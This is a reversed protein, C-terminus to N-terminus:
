SVLQALTITLIETTGSGSVTVTKADSVGALNLTNATGATTIEIAEVKAINVTGVKADDTGDTKTNASGIDTVKLKQTDTQTGTVVTSAVDYAVNVNAAKSSGTVEVDALSALDSLTVAAKTGDITYKTAGTVGTADFNIESTSSNVIKITEVNKVSGTTFGTFSKGM